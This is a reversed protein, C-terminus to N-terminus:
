YANKNVFGKFITTFIIEIDMWVSWYHIYELDSRIRKEMKDITDTEGRLGRIQALGTIGPKVNHRLMYGKILSRYLENHAVAHPRPGVISMTGQLTNFFQPLEDLSTRRLFQGFPTIRSDGKTAQKVNNGDECVKMTRFKLVKIEEGRLGYRKQVFFIPGPSTLKIGISIILMPLAIISLIISSVGIDLIRKSIGDIGAHPIDYVCISPLGNYNEIKSGLLDFVFLDPIYYVVTSSDGLNDIISKIRQESRMPLTIFIVDIENNKARKVLDDFTGIVETDATRNDKGPTRDDFFGVLELGMWPEKLIISRLDLGLRTAGFIATTKSNIGVKRLAILILRLLFHWGILCLPTIIVWPYFTKYNESDVYDAILSFVATSFISASWATVINKCIFLFRVGRPIGYLNNFTSFFLFTLVSAILVLAQKDEIHNKEGNIYIHFTLIIILIDIVKVLAILASKNQRIFGNYQNNLLSGIFM